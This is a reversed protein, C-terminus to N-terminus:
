MWGETVGESCYVHGGHPSSCKGDVNKSVHGVDIARARARHRRRVAYPPYPAPLSLNQWEHGASYWCKVALCFCLRAQASTFYIWTSLVVQRM